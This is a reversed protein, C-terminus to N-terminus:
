GNLTLRIMSTVQLSRMKQLEARKRKAEEVDMAKLAKEERVTLIREQGLVSESGKLLKAVELEL